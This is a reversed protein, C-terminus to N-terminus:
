IRIRDNEPGLYPGNKIELVKTDDELVEYGHGGALLILIDNKGVFLTKFLKDATNYIEAKVKGERVFLVEQTRNIERKTEIHRHSLLKKGKNYSWTGVQQFDAEKSFFSLGEEWDGRIHIALRTNGDIIERIEM